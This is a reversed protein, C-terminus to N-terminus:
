RSSSRRWSSRCSAIANARCRAAGRDQGAGRRDRDAHEAQEKASSFEVAPRPGTLATPMATVRRTITVRSGARSTIQPRHTKPGRRSPWRVQTIVPTPWTTPPMAATTRPVTSAPWSPPRSIRPPSSEPRPPKEAKMPTSTRIWTAISCQVLTCLRGSKPLGSGVVVPMQALTPRAIAGRGRATQSTVAPRSSHGAEAQEPEVGGPQGGFVGVGLLEVRDRALLDELRVAQGVVGVGIM